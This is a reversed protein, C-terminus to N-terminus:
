APANSRACLQSLSHILSEYFYTAAINLISGYVVISRVSDSVDILGLWQSLNNGADDIIIYYSCIMALIVNLIFGENKYVAERFADGRTYTIVTSIYQMNAFM